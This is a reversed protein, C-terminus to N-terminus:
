MIEMALSSSPKSEMGPEPKRQATLLPVLLQFLTQAPFHNQRRNNNQDNVLHFDCFVVQPDAVIAPEVLFQAGGSPINGYADVSCLGM